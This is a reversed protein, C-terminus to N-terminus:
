YACNLPQLCFALAQHYPDEEIVRWETRQILVERQVQLDSAQNSQSALLGWM